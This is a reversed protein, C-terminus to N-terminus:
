VRFGLGHVEFRPDKLWGLHWGGVGWLANIRSIEGQPRTGPKMGEEFLKGLHDMYVVM